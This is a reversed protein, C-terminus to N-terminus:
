GAMVGADVLYLGGTVYSAEPSLLWAVVNAVEDPTGLRHGLPVRSELGARQKEPDEPAAMSNISHVMRTDIFGPAVANVRVGFAAAEIAAGKTLGIVAHKSTSYPALRSSGRLGAISATNVIAGGTRQFEMARLVERLGLFVGRVNVALVRDFEAIETDVIRGMRGEIGANNFFLDVRGHEAVTRRVYGVVDSEVTVDAAITMVSGLDDAARELQVEDKDVLVVRAGDALLRTALARGLGGAGGTVIGVQGDFRGGAM